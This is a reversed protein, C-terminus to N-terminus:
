DLSAPSLNKAAMPVYMRLPGIKGFHGVLLSVIFAGGAIGLKITLGNPLHIPISGLAIGLLLGILFPVMNTEEVKRVTGQM